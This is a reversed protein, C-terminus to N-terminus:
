DFSESEDRGSYEALTSSVSTGKRRNYFNPFKETDINHEPRDAWYTEEPTDEVRGFECYTCEAYNGEHTLRIPRGCEPCLAYGPELAEKILNNRYLTKYFEYFERVEEDSAISHAVRYSEPSSAVKSVHDSNGQLEIMKKRDPRAQYNEIAEPKSVRYIPASFTWGLAYAWIAACRRQRSDTAEKQSYIGPLYERLPIVNLDIRGETIGDGGYAEIITLDNVKEAWRKIISEHTKTLEDTIIIVKDPHLENRFFSKQAQSIVANPRYGNKVRVAETLTYTTEKGAIKYALNYAAKRLNPEEISGIHDIIIYSKISM